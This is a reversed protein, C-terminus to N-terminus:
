MVTSTDWCHLQRETRNSVDHRPAASRRLFMTVGGDLDSRSGASSGGANTDPLADMSSVDCGDDSSSPKPRTGGLANLLHLSGGSSSGSVHLPDTARGAASGAAPSARREKVFERSVLADTSDGAAPRARQGRGGSKRRRGSSNGATPGAAVTM